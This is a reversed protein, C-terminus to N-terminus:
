LGTLSRKKASGLRNKGASAASSTKDKERNIERDTQTPNGMALGHTEWPYGMPKQDTKRPRGGKPGNIWNAILQANHEEWGHVRYQDGATDLFGSEILWAVFERPDGNYGCTAAIQQPKNADYLATRRTQCSGWLRLVFEAADQRGSLRKLERLKWHDVFDPQVIM